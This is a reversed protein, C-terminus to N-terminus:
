KTRQIRNHEKRQESNGIPNGEKLKIKPEIPFGIHCKQEILEWSNEIPALITSKV